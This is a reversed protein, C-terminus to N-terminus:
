SAKSIEKMVPVENCNDPFRPCNVCESWIKHPLLHKPVVNFGLKLFFDPKVTLAFVKKVGLQEATAICKKVLSSGFGKGKYNPAVALAKIEAIDEWTIFLECCGVVKKNIDVVYFNQLQEYIQNLSRPLMEGNKAYQNNLERIKKVDSIKAKRMM